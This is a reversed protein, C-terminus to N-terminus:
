LWLIVINAEGLSLQQLSAPWVVRDFPQNFAGLSLRQLSAPWVVGNIARNFRHWLTLVRAWDAVM